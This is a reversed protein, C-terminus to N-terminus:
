RAIRRAAKEQELAAPLALSQHAAMLLAAATDHEVEIGFRQQVVRVSEARAVDTDRRDWGPGLLARKWASPTVRRVHSKPIGLLEASEQWWGASAGQGLISAMSRTGEKGKARTVHDHRTGRILPMGSHDELVLWVARLDLMAIAIAEELARKRDAANKALGWKVPRPTMAAQMAFGSREGQDVAIIIM